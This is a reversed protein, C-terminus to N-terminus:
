KRTVLRIDNIKGFKGFISELEEKTADFPLGKVFVRALDKGDAFKFTSRETKDRSIKNIYVPRGNIPRRDFTLAKEVEAPSNLELYGYGRGRGNATTVLDLNKINLDSFTDLVETETVDFSLNSLFVTVDDKDHSSRDFTKTEPKKQEVAFKKNAAFPPKKENPKQKKYEVDAGAGTGDDPKRKAAKRKQDSVYKNYNEIIKACIDHCEQIQELSGHTYEFSKWSSM